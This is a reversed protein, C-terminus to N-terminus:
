DDGSNSAITLEKPAANVLYKLIRDFQSEDHLVYCHVVQDAPDAINIITCSLRREGRHVVQIPRGKLLRRPMVMYYDPLGATLENFFPLINSFLM